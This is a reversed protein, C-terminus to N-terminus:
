KAMPYKSVHPNEQVERSYNRDPQDMGGRADREGARRRTAAFRRHGRPTVVVAVAAAVAAAVVVTSADM